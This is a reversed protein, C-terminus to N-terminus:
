SSFNDCVTCSRCLLDAQLTAAHPFEAALYNGTHIYFKGLHYFDRSPTLQKPVIHNINFVQMGAPLRSNQYIGPFPPGPSWGGCFGQISLREQTNRTPSMERITDWDASPLVFCVGHSESPSFVSFGPQTSQNGRQRVSCPLMVGRVCFSSPPKLLNM